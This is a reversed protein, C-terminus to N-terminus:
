LLGPLVAARVDIRRPLVQLDLYRDAIAQQQAILAETLPETDYRNRRSEALAIAKEPIGTEKVMLRIVDAPRSKAWDKMRNLDALFEKLLDPSREAFTRSTFYFERGEVYGEGTTLKRYRGGEEAAALFPDWIAWADISGSEIAERGAAPPLFSPQIDSFQLQNADLYRLVMTHASTGRGFGVRKGRLDSAKRIPSDERVLIGATKPSASSAAFYLFPVGAAQAFLPPSDGAHGIDVSGANLAELLPPGASFEKWAVRVAQLRPNREMAGSAKLIAFTGGKQYGIRLDGQAQRSCGSLAAFAIPLPQLLRLCDRRSHKM